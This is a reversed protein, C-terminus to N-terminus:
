KKIFNPSFEFTLAGNGKELMDLPLLEQAAKEISHFPRAFACHLGSLGANMKAAAVTGASKSSFPM